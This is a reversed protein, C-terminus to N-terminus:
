DNKSHMKELDVKAEDWESFRRQSLLPWQGYKQTLSRILEQSSNRREGPTAMAISVLDSKCSQYFTKVNRLLQSDQEKAPLALM